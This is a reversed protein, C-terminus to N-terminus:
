GKLAENLLVSYHLARAQPYYKKLGCAIQAVAAPSGSVVIDARAAAICAIKRRLLEASRGPEFIPFGFEAGCPYDAEEMEAFGDRFAAKLVERAKRSATQWHASAANEHFVIRAGSLNVAAKDKQRGNVSASSNALVFSYQESPVVELSDRVCSAFERARNRWQEDELFLQEARKFYSACEGCDTVFPLAAGASIEEHRSIVRKLAERADNIDGYLYNYLGCCLGDIVRVPGVFRDALSLTALGIEPHLYSTSCSAFYVCGTRSTNDARSLEPSNKALEAFFKAPQGGHMGHWRALWSAGLVRLIGAKDLLTVLGSRRMFRAKRMMVAFAQPDRAANELARRLIRDPKRAYVRRCELMHEPTPVRSHCATICAGCLLCSHAAEALGAGDADLKLRGGMAMRVLQNRGRASFNERGTLRYTPCVQQCLGCRNCKIVSEYVAKEGQETLLNKLHLPETQATYLENYPLFDDLKPLRM